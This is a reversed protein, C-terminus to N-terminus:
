RPGTCPRMPPYFYIARDGPQSGLNRGHDRQALCVNIYRGNYQFYIDISPFIAALLLSKEGCM